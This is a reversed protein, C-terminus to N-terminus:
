IAATIMSQESASINGLINTDDGGFKMPQPQAPEPESNAAARVNKTQATKQKAIAAVRNGWMGLAVLITLPDAFKSVNESIGPDLRALTRALPSEILAREIENMAAERGVFTQAVSDLIAIIATATQGSTDVVAALKKSGRPTYHRKPKKEQTPEIEEVLIVPTTEPTEDTTEGTPTTAPIPNGTGISYEPIKGTANGVDFSVTATNENQNRGPNGGDAGAGGHNGAVTRNARQTSGSGTNGDGARIFHGREDRQPKRRGNDM